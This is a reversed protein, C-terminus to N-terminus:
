NREYVWKGNKLTSNRSWTRTRGLHRVKPEKLLLYSYGKERARVGYERGTEAIDAFPGIREYDKRRFVLCGSGSRSWLSYGNLAGVKNREKKMPITKMPSVIIKKGEYWKLLKISEALWGARFILDNDIFVIYGSDTAEAGQNRPVGMGLNVKNIIHKNIDQTKLFATQKKPGNDVVVLEFPYETHKRLSLLTHKLLDLRKPYEAQSIMVISCDM